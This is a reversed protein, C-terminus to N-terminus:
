FSSEGIIHWGGQGKKLYLIKNIETKFNSSQYRQNFRAVAFKGEREPPLLIMLDDTAVRIFKKGKNVKEKHKRFAHYSMGDASVFEPAYHSMYRQVNRSEWGKRWSDIFATLEKALERQSQEKTFTLKNVIVIPTGNARVYGTMEKLADNSVVICGKSNLVESGFSKSASHGHLWIGTGDRGERRDLANPYNLVYAGYGYNEALSKGPIYRLFFYLGVPTALDGNKKKDQDNAGILCPYAKVLSLKGASQYFIYLTKTEKECVLLNEKDGTFVFSSPVEQSLDPLSVSAQVPLAAKKQAPQSSSEPATETAPKVAVPKEVPPALLTLMEKRTEALDGFAKQLDKNSLAKNILELRKNADAIFSLLQRNKMEQRVLFFVLVSSLLVLFAIAAIAMKLHAHKLYIYRSPYKNVAPQYPKLKRFKLM